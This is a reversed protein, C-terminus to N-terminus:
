RKKKEKKSMNKWFLDQRTFKNECKGYKQAEEKEGIELHTEEPRFFM